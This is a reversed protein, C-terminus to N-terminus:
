FWRELVAAVGDKANSLTIEDAAALTDPHGNGMAVGLGAWRLMPVDNPMDGFAVVEAAEVGIRAAVEALGTGKTIGAASIEIMGVNSSYTISVADGVLDRAAQALEESTVGHQRFILKVAARGLLEGRPATRIQEGSWPHRYGAETVFEHGGLATASGGVREVAVTADPLQAAVAHVVDTLLVPDLEHAVLVRDAAIDYLVAGNACVAYGSVGAAAAVGPIWRAPRGSALVFATGAALMREIVASTRDSVTDLPGLLTGDVDSAVLKPTEVRGDQQV